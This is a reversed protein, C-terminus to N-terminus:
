RWLGETKLRISALIKSAQNRVQLYPNELPAGTRPHATIAGNRRINEEAELYLLFADAYRVLV